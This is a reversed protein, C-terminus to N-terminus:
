ADFGYELVYAASDLVMENVEVARGGDAFATRCVLVVPTGGPLGLERAEEPLPMRSRVEERFRVPACGIEALRAYIGGAGTDIEAVATEAVLAAPLYSAALMVPKGELVYRRRRVCVADGGAVDLVRAVREPAPEEGVRVRDVVPARGPDDVEWVSRGDAWGGQALREVARRRRM